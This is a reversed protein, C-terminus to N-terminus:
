HKSKARRNRIIIYVSVVVAVTVVAATMILTNTDPPQPSDTPTPTTDANVQSLTGIIAMSLLATVVLLLLIKPHKNGYKGSMMFAQMAYRLICRFTYINLLMEEVVIWFIRRIATQPKQGLIRYKYIGGLYLM